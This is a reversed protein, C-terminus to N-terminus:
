SVLFIQKNIGGFYLLYPSATATCLILAYQPLSTDSWDNRVEASSQPLHDTEPRLGKVGTYLIEVVWIVPAHDHGLALGSM